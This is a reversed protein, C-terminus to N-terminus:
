AEEEEKNLGEVEKASDVLLEVAKKRELDSTMVEKNSEMMTKVMEELKDEDGKFYRESMERAYAELEDDSVEFKEAAVIAELVLSKLVEREADPRMSDKFDDLSQGLMQLYQELQIGQSRMNNDMNRIQEDIANKVMVDPVDVKANAAAAELVRDMRINKANAEVEEAKQKKLDEKYEDVTDFESIDKIFEDDVEPLEEVAISNLTISFVADKGKLEKSHYDEPFSVEIDFAEGVEHGVIGEEFGPIFSGSGLELEQDEATGGDFAVGDVKGVFDINVKDGEEAARDDINIRRANLHRQKDIENDIMEDSVETPVAEIELGKYEGLVVEPKVEVSVAVVLDKSRDFNEEDLDIEPQDIVDLELEKLADQYIKPLVENLADEFFIGEGYFQEVIKKPVHGKRFGPVNFYNKNRKYVKSEAEKIEVHPVTLDFFVKNKEQKKIETM